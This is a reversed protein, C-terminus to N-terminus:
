FKLGLRAAVSDSYGANVAETREYSISGDWEDKTYLDAGVVFKWNSDAKNDLTLQYNTSQNNYHMNVVSSGSVDAGYEFKMFPRINGNDIPTIYDADVGASLVTSDIVQKGYTLASVGGSESYGDYSTRSSYIKGYPTLSFRGAELTKRKVVLSGFFQDAAHSGNLTDSGDIRVKDINIRGYGLMAHALTKQDKDRILGYGSISYSDSDITSNNTTDAEGKGLGIVVGILHNDETPRDFGLSVNYTTSEQASSASTAHTKGLTIRGETWVSWDGLARDIAKTNFAADM